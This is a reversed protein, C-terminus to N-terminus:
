APLLGVMIIHQHQFQVKTRFLDDLAQREPDRAELQMVEEEEVAVGTSGSSGDKNGSGSGATAPAAASPVTPMFPVSTQALYDPMLTQLLPFLGGQWFSYCGDVLKNTRGM